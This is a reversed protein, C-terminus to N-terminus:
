PILEGNRGGFVNDMLPITLNSRIESEHSSEQVEEFCVSSESGRELFDKELFVVHTPIVIKNESKHYCYYGKNKKPYRIFICKDSKPELKDSTM